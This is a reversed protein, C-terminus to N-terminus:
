DMKKQDIIAMTVTSSSTLEDISNFIEVVWIHTRKGLHTPRAIGRVFGDSVVKIHSTNISQGALYRKPDDLFLNGGINALTEALSCSAGGHLVGFPQKVRNTVPMIGEVLKPSMKTIKIGLNEILTDSCYHENIEEVSITLNSNMM